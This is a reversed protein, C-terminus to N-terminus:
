FEKGLERLRSEVAHRDLGGAKIFHALTKDGKKQNCAKCIYVLNSEVSLGDKSVPYIRDLEPKDETEGGCYPCIEAVTM